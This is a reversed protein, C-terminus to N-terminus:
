TSKKKRKPKKASVEGAARGMIRQAQMHQGGWEVLTSVPDDNRLEGAARDGKVGGRRTSSVSFSSIYHGTRRHEEALAVARDKLQYTRDLMAAEMQQSALIQGIGKNNPRFSPRKAM